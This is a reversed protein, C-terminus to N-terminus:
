QGPLAQNIFGQTVGPTFEFAAIPLTRATRTIKVRVTAWLLDGGSSRGGARLASSELSSSAQAGILQMANSGRQRAYRGSDTHGQGIPIAITDPRIGPYVYVPAEIEGYPSTIKVIEAVTVGRQFGVDVQNARIGLKQATTPHMEVWTQWAITTMPDPSGQLWPQNAGRGDSLLNSLYLYLFYPYEKAEGQWQVPSLVIPALKPTPPPAPTPAALWWGGHQLFRAWHVETGEGGAAGVPLKGITDKLFAVQDSFSLAKAAAPIGRAVTLIVDATARADFVPQVVPQQGSVIPSGFNPAVVEYGWGELYTLDPLILDAWVATEDVIPAFSVVFPVNKLADIFTTAAPLEFAPNAGHVFLVQVDGARMREILALADSFSSLPPKLAPPPAPSFSLNGTGAILNLAQVASAAGAIGQGALANGPMAVPNPATAFLRALRTLDDLSIDSAAAVANLDVTGALTNARAVREPAALQQDAIIRALAQAVLAESGPRLSFWEDAKAATISMRPEFQILYGRKGLLQSRLRGYEMGYRTASLWTGLLDAGFSFVMDARSLDYASLADIGFLQLNTDSLTRYGNLGTYLDFLVPAPAGVATTFRTFVDYLHGSMTADGWVAINKGASSTKAFLTNIAENWAMSAFQRTGRHAQRVPGPLRDPNYLLQLGAQGRACLKGKNLPHEPNGEIKLARGNMVRVIIGCGAPCQRCTSAYWTAIGSLQEEPPRVYPVLYVWARPPLCGTLVTTAATAAGIKLFQRRTIHPPM